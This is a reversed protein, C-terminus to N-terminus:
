KMYLCVDKLVLNPFFVVTRCVDGVSTCNGGNLLVCRTNKLGWPYIALDISGNICIYIYINQCIINIYLIHGIVYQLLSPNMGSFTFENLEPIQEFISQWITVEVM